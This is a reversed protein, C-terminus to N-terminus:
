HKFESCILFCYENVTGLLHKSMVVKRLNNEVIITYAKILQLEMRVGLVIIQNIAVDLVISM